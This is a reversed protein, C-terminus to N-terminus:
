PSPPPSVGAPEQRRAEMLAARFAASNSMEQIDCFSKGGKLFLVGAEVGPLPLKKLLVLRTAPARLRPRRLPRGM